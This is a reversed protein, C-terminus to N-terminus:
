DEGDDQGEDNDEPRATGTLNYYDAESIEKFTAHKGQMFSKFNDDSPGEVSFATNSWTKKCSEAAVPLLSFFWEAVPSERWEDFAEKSPVEVKKSM